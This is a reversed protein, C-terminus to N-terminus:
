AITSLAALACPSHHEAAVLMHPEYRAAAVHVLEKDVVVRDGDTVMLDADVASSATSATHVPRTHQACHSGTHASHASM